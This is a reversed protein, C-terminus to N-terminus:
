FYGTIILCGDASHAAENMRTIEAPISVKILRLVSPSILEALTLMYTLAQEPNSRNSACSKDNTYTFMIGKLTAPTVNLIAIYLDGSRTTFWRENHELDNAYYDSIPASSADPSQALVLSGAVTRIRGSKVYRVLTSSASSLGVNGYRVKDFIQADTEEGHPTFFTSGSLSHEHAPQNLLTVVALLALALVAVWIMQAVIAVGMNFRNRAAALAIGRVGILSLMVINVGYLIWSAINAADTQGSAAIVWIITQEIALVGTLAAGVIAALRAHGHGAIFGVPFLMATIRIKGKPLALMNSIGHIPPQAPATDPENTPAGQPKIVDAGNTGVRKDAAFYRLCAFGVGSVVLFQIALRGYDLSLAEGSLSWLWYWNDSICTAGYCTRTPVYLLSLIAAAIALLEIHKAKM